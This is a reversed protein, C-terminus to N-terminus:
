NDRKSRLTSKDKRAYAFGSLAIVIVVGIGGALEMKAQNAAVRCAEGSSQIQSITGQNATNLVDAYRGTAYQSQAQQLAQNAQSADNVNPQVWVFGCGTLSSVASSLQGLAAQASLFEQHRSQLATSLQSAFAPLAAAASIASYQGAVINSIASQGRQNCSQVQSQLDPAVMGEQTYSSFQSMDSACQQLNQLVLNVAGLPTYGTIAALSNLADVYDSAEYAGNGQNFASQYGSIINAIEGLNFGSGSLATMLQDTDSIATDVGSLMNGIAHFQSEEGLFLGGLLLTAGVGLSIVQIADVNGGLSITCSMDIGNELVVMGGFIAAVVPVPGSLYLSVAGVFNTIKELNQLSPQYRNCFDNFKTRTEDAKESLRASLQNWAASTSQQVTPTMNSLLSQASQASNQAGEGINLADIVNSLASSLTNWLWSIAQNIQTGILPIHSTIWGELQRFVQDLQQIFNRLWNIINQIANVISNVFRTAYNIDNVVQAVSNLISNLSDLNPTGENIIASILQDFNSIDPLYSGISGSNINNLINALQRIDDASINFGGWQQVAWALMDPVGWDHFVGLTWQSFPIQWTLFSYLNATYTAVTSTGFSISFSYARNNISWISNSDSNIRSFQETMSSILSNLNPNGNLYDKVYYGQLIQQLATAHTIGNPLSPFLINGIQNITYTGSQTAINMLSTISEGPNAVLQATVTATATVVTPFDTTIHDNSNATFTIFPSSPDGVTVQLTFSYHAGPGLSGVYISGPSASWSSSTRVLLTLGNITDSGENKVSFQIPSTQGTPYQGPTSNLFLIPIGPPQDAHALPISTLVVLLLVIGHWFRL